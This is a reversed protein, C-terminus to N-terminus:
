GHTLGNRGVPPHKIAQALLILEARSHADLKRMVSARRLQITRLSLDLRNAIEKDHKGAITLDLVDKEVTTLTEYKGLLEDREAQARRQRADLELARRVSEMLAAGRYPKELFEIAGAKMASVAAPIDGHGSIMIVPLHISRSSLVNLVELGGVQPMRLDLVLCGPRTPVFHDLFDRGSSYCEVDLNMSQILAALSERVQEDDDVVSVTPSQPM